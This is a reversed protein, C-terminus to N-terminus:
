HAVKLEKVREEIRKARKHIEGSFICVIEGVAEAIQEDDTKGTAVYAEDVLLNVALDALGDVIRDILGDVIQPGGEPLLMLLYEEDTLNKIVMGKKTM